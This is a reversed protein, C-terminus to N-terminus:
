PKSIASMQTRSVVVLVKINSTPGLTSNNSSLRKTILYCFTIATFLSDTATCCLNYPGIINGLNIGVVAFGTGILFPLANLSLESLCAFLSMLNAQRYNQQAQPQRRQHGNLKYVFIFGLIVNLVSAVLKPAIVAKEPIVKLICNIQSCNAQTLQFQKSWHFLETISCLLNCRVLRRQTRAYNFPWKFIILRDIILFSVSFTTATSLVRFPLGIWFIYPGFFQDFTTGKSVLYGASLAGNFSTGAWLLINILLLKSNQQRVLQSTFLKLLLSLHLCFAISFILFQYVYQVVFLTPLM